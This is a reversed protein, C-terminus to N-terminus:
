VLGAALAATVFKIFAEVVWAAKELAGAVVALKEASHKIQNSLEKLAAADTKLSDVLENTKIRIINRELSRLKVLATELELRESPVLGSIARANEVIDIADHVQELTKIKETNM